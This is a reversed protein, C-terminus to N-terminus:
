GGVPSATRRSSCSSLFYGVLAVHYATYGPGDTQAM